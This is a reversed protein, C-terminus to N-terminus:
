KHDVKRFTWSEAGKLAISFICRKVLKKMVSLDTKSTFLAKEKNFAVQAMSIRSKIKRACRSDNTMM